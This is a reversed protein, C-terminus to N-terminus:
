LPGRVFRTSRSLSPRVGGVIAFTHEIALVVRPTDTVHGPCTAAPRPPLWQARPADFDACPAWGVDRPDVGAEIAQTATRGGLQTLVHDLVVSAGRVAGFQGDVLERFQTLRVGM